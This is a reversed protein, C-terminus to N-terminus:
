REPLTRRQSSRGRSRRILASEYIETLLAYNREASYLDEYARRAADSASQWDAESLQLMREIAGTLAQPDGPRYLLGTENRGVIEPFPGHDPAIVPTAVSFAEPVVLPLGEYFRSPVVVARSAAVADFLEPSELWGRWTVGPLGEATQELAGREPGDGIIHLEAGELGVGKWAELLLDVSKEASIRGVYALRPPAPERAPRGEGHDLSFNPKVHLRDAPLGGRRFLERAFDSLVVYADVRNRFTGLARHSVQMAAVAATPALEGRYCRYRLAPWPANGVCAECPQGDRLLLANACVLRYNHLTMVVPIGARDAAWCVSLSLRQFTNHVHVIEPRHSHIAEATRRYGSQSWVTRVGAAAKRALTDLRLDRNSAELLAVEHGHQELLERELQAAAEEGGRRMNRNHVQLIRM